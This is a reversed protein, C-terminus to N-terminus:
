LKRINAVPNRDIWELVMTRQMLISLVALRENAKSWTDKLGDRVRLADSRKFHRVDKSGNKERIDDRHRLYNEKTKAVLEKFEASSHYSVILAQWTTKLVRKSKGNRIAWYKSAFEETDPHDPLRERIKAKRFYIYTKGKVTKFELYPLNSRKLGCVSGARDQQGDPGSRDRGGDLPIAKWAPYTPSPITDSQCATHCFEARAM